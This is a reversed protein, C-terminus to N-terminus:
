KYTQIMQRFDWSPKYSINTGAIVDRAPDIWYYNSGSEVKYAQGTQPDVVRTMNQLLDGRREAIIDWSARRAAQTQQHLNSSFERYRRHNEMIRADAGAQAYWWQPNVTTTDLMRHLVADAQTAREAPAVFGELKSVNWLNAVGPNANVTTEVFLYGVYPRGNAQCTFIVEGATYHNRELLLGQSALRHVYDARDTQRLWRLNGCNRAWNQQVYNAAFPVAPIFRQVFYAGGSAWRGEHQGNTALTLNPEIFQHPLSVDGSRVLVQGDPSQAVTESVRGTGVGIRRIGGSVHWGVPVEASYATETPEVWRGFQLGALPDSPGGGGRGDGGRGGGGGNHLVRFSSLVHAFVAESAAFRAPPAAVAYFFATAGQETNVWWLATTERVRSEDAGVARVGNAGFQWGGRPMDWRQGPGLQASLSLLVGRAREPDLRGEVRLPHITVREGDPGAATIRGAEGGVRWSGPVDLAFGAPDQHTTWGQANVATCATLMLGAALLIGFATLTLM